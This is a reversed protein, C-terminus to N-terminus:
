EALPEVRVRLYPLAPDLVRWTEAIRYGPLWVVTNGSVCLPIHDRQARPVKADTLIDQLKRSGRSGTPRLRDGARRCRITLPADDPTPMRLATSAPVLGPSRGADTPFPGTQTSLVIRVGLPAINLAGSCSAPLPWEGDIIANAAEGDYASLINGVKVIQKGDGVSLRAPRGTMVMDDLREICARKIRAAPLGISHLWDTLIRQRLATPHPALRQVLLAPYRNRATHEAILPEILCKRAADDALARTWRNELEVQHAMRLLAQRVRPNLRTELWPLLEHRVRNRRYAPDLNGADERWAIAHRRLWDLIEPRGVDLLPRALMVRGDALFSRYPISALASLSTGRAMNLLLTEVRDDANHGTAVVTAGQDLAVRTFFARRADRGAMEISQRGTQAQRRIDVREGIFRLGMADATSRVFDADAAGLAGRLGHDLHVVVLRGHPPIGLRQLAHLLLMSDAGGSVAVLIVGNDPILDHCAITQAIRNLM